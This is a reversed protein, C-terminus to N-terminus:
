LSQLVYLHHLRRLVDDIFIATLLSPFVGLDIAQLGRNANRLRLVLRQPLTLTYSVGPYV